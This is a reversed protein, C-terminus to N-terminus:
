SICVNMDNLYYEEQTQGAYLGFWWALTGPKYFGWKYKLYYPVDDTKYYINNDLTDDNYYGTDSLKVWITGNNSFTIYNNEIPDLFHQEIKYNCNNVTPTFLTTFTVCFFMVFILGVFSIGIFLMIRSSISMYEESLVIIFAIVLIICIWAM